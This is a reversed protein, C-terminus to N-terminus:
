VAVDDHEQSDIWARMRQEREVDETFPCSMCYEHGLRHALCCSGRRMGVRPRGRHVFEHWTPRARLPPCALAFFADAEAPGRYPDGTLRETLLFARACQASVAGWLAPLGLRAKSRLAVVIPELHDIMEHVLRRRLEAVDWAVGTVGPAAADAPLVTMRSSHFATADFWGNDHRRVSMARPDLDPVRREIVFCAIAPYVINAAYWATLYSVAVEDTASQHERIEAVAVDLGDPRMLRECGIWGGADVRLASGPRVGPETLVARRPELVRAVARLTTGLHARGGSITGPVSSM